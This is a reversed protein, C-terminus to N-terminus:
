NLEKIIIVINFKPWDQIEFIKNKQYVSSKKQLVKSPKPGAQFGNWCPIQPMNEASLIFMNKKSRSATPKMMDKRDM